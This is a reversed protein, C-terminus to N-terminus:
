QKETRLRQRLSQMKSYHSGEWYVKHCDCCQYFDNYYKKTLPLLMGEIEKKEVARIIGNCQMCRMCGPTFGFLDYRRLVETIQKRPKDSRPFYGYRIKKRMLLKRDRTLLIRDQEASIAALTADAYDNRYLTDYGLMRLYSALKGLHVDLVFGQEPSTPPLNHLLPVNDPQQNVPYVDLLEGGKILHRFDVSLADVMIVDVETHPVGLSEILDKVSRPKQVAVILPQEQMHVPLLDNLAKFFRIQIQNQKM